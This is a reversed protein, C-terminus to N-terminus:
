CSDGGLILPIPATRAVVGVREFRVYLKRKASCDAFEDSPVLEPFVSDGKRVSM